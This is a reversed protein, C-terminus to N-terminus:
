QQIMKLADEFCQIIAVQGKWDKHFRQEDPTLKRKSPPQNPDKIEALYNRGMYGIVADVFGDGVMSTIKVSVGPLQRLQKVIQNQNADIRKARM